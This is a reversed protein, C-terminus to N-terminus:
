NEKEDCMRFLAISLFFNALFDAAHALIYVCDENFLESKSKNLSDVALAGFFEYEGLSTLEYRIPVVVTANYHRDWNPNENLYADELDKLNNNLFCEKLGKFINMYATNQDIEYVVHSVERKKDSYTKPDRYATIVWKDKTKLGIKAQSNLRTGVIDLLRESSILLKVCVSINENIQPHTHRLHEELAIRVRLTIDKCVDKMFEWEEPGIENIHIDSSRTRYYDVLESTFNRGTIRYNELQKTIYLRLGEVQASTEGRIQKVKSNTEKRISISQLKFTTAFLTLVIAIGLIALDRIMFMRMPVGDPYQWGIYSLILGLIGIIGFIVTLARDTHKFFYEKIYSFLKKDSSSGMASGSDM